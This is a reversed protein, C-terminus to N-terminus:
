KTTITSKNSGIFNWSLKYGKKEVRVLKKGNSKKSFSVSMDSSKNQLEQEGDSNNDVPTNDIDVWKGNEDYHISSSYVAAMRLGNNLRFHKTNETREEIIEEVIDTSYTDNSYDYKETNKATSEVQNSAVAYVGVFMIQMFLSFTLTIAILKLLLSKQNM